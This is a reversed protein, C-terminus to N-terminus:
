PPYWNFLFVFHGVSALQWRWQLLSGLIVFSQMSSRCDKAIRPDKKCYKTIMLDKRRHRHCPADIPCKTNKNPFKGLWEVLWVASWRIAWGELCCSVLLYWVIKPTKTPKAQGSAKLTTKEARNLIRALLQYWRSVEVKSNELSRRYILITLRWVSMYYFSFTQFM